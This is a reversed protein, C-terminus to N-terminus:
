YDCGSFSGIVGICRLAIVDSLVALLDICRGFVVCQQLKMVGM